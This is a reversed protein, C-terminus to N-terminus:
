EPVPDRGHAPVPGRSLRKRAGRREAAGCGACYRYLAHLRDRGEGACVPQRIGQARAPTSSILVTSVTSAPWALLWAFNPQCVKVSATNRMRQCSGWGTAKTSHPLCALDFQLSGDVGGGAPRPQDMSRGMGRRQGGLAAKEAAPREALHVGKQPLVACNGDTPHKSACSCAMNIHCKGAVTSYYM